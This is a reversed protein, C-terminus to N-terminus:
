EIGKAFNLCTCEFVDHPSIGGNKECFHQYNGGSCKADMGEYPPVEDCVKRNCTECFKFKMM